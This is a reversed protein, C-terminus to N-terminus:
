DVELITLSFAMQFHRFCFLLANFWFCIKNVTHYDRSLDTIVRADAINAM